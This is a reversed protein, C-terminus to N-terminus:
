RPSSEQLVVAKRKGHLQWSNGQPAIIKPGVKVQPKASQIGKSGIAVIEERADAPRQPQSAVGAPKRKPPGKLKMGGFSVKPAAAPTGGVGAM